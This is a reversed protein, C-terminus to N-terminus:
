LQFDAIEYLEFRVAENRHNSSTECLSYKPGLVYACSFLFFVNRVSTETDDKNGNLARGGGVVM